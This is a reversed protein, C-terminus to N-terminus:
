HYLSCLSLFLSLSQPLHWTFVCSEHCLICLLWLHPHSILRFNQWSVNRTESGPHTLVFFEGLSEIFPELLWWWSSHSHTPRCSCSTNRGQGWLWMSKWLGLWSSMAGQLWIFIALALERRGCVCMYAWSVCVSLYVLVCEWLCLSVSMYSMCVCLLHNLWVPLPLHFHRQIRKVCMYRSLLALAVMLSESPWNPSLLLTEWEQLGKHMWLTM